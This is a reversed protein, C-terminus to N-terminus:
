ATTTSDLSCRPASRTPWNRYGCRARQKPDSTAEALQELLDARRDNLKVRKEGSSSAVEADVKEMESMLKTEAESPADAPRTAVPDPRNSRAAFFFQGATNVQESDGIAPADIIKWTAGVRIMSGLAVQDHRGETSVFAAVNEYVTVDDTSGDTGSPIM